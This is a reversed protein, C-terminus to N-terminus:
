PRYFECHAYIKQIVGSRPREDTADTVGHKQSACEPALADPLSELEGVPAGSTSVISAGLLAGAAWVARPAVDRLEELIQEPGVAAVDPYLLTM